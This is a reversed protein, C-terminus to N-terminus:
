EKNQTFLMFPVKVSKMIGVWPTCLWILRLNFAEPAFVESTQHMQSKM